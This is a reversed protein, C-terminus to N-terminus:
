TLTSLFQMTDVGDAYDDLAPEQSKGFPVWQRGKGSPRAVICQIQDAHAELHRELAMFEEYFAYHLTGIRSAISDAEHLIICGNNMYYEKNLIYLAFAYDLNNKYKDHLVIDRYHHLAQLLPEFDYGKPVFIKSVNRCGLGFYSFIDKGLAILEDGTEDGTLIAVANRNRRIIHPYHGFYAEFYRSSNNSGTAIVADFGKLKDVIRIHAEVAPELGYLQHIIFEMLAKDKESLKVLATHGSVFVALLDHFGVLPINGAPILGVNRPSAPSLPYQAAWRNLKDADLFQRRIAEIAQRSNEPVFWKNDRYAKAIALQLAPNDETLRRGLRVLVDLRAEPQLRVKNKTM